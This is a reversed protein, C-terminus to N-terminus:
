ATRRRRTRGRVCIRCVRAGDPRRHTNEANWEHGHACHTQDARGRPARGKRVMDLANDRTTGLFLHDPCVCRRNDCHHCVLIKSSPISGHTIIWAFRHAGFDQFGVTFKGYGTTSTITGQWEWCGHADVRVKEWFREVPNRWRSRDRLAEWRVGSM